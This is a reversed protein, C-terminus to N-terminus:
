NTINKEKKVNERKGKEKKLKNMLNRTAFVKNWIVM